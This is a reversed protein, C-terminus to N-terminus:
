KGIGIAAISQEAQALPEVPKVQNDKKPMYDKPFDGFASHLPKPLLKNDSTKVPQTETRNIVKKLHDEIILSSAHNVRSGIGAPNGSM